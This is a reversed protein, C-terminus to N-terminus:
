EINKRPHGNHVTQGQKKTLDFLQRLTLHARMEHYKYLHHYSLVHQVRMVLFLDKSPSFFRIQSKERELAKLLDYLLSKSKVHAGIKHSVM